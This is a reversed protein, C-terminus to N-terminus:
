RYPINEFYWGVLAEEKHKEKKKGPHTLSKKEDEGKHQHIFKFFRSMAVGGFELLLFLHSTERVDGM